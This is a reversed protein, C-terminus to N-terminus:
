GGVWVPPLPPDAERSSVFSPSLYGTRRLFRRLAVVYADGFPPTDFAGRRAFDGRRNARRVVRWAQACRRIRCMDAVYAPLVGKVSADPDGRVRQYIRFVRRAQQRLKSPFQRSVDILSFEQYQWIRLPQVSCAGCSFRYKFRYDGGVFEVHDAGGYDRLLYWTGFNRVTRHYGGTVASYGYVVALVCCNAGGTFLDLLVEPEGDGDLDRLRVAPDRPSCGRGCRSPMADDRLVQGDRLIRVRMDRKEIYSFRGSWRRRKVYSFEVTVSGSSFREVTRRPGTPVEPEALPCGDVTAAPEFPCADDSDPVGDGDSDVPAPVPPASGYAYCYYTYGDYVITTTDRSPVYTDSGPRACSWGQGTSDSWIYTHHDSPCSHASHCGHSHASAEAAGFGSAVVLATSAIVAALRVERDLSGSQEQKERM